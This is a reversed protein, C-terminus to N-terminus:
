DDDQRCIGPEYDEACTVEIVTRGAEGETDYSISCASWCGVNNHRWCSATANKLGHKNAWTLAKVEGDWDDSCCGALFLFLLGYKM